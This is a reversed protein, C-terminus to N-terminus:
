GPCIKIRRWDYVAFTSALVVRRCGFGIMSFLLRETGDVSAAIVRREDGTVAAALHVLVDVGEFAPALNETTNLDARFM